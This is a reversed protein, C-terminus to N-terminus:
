TTSSLASQFTQIGFNKHWPVQESGYKLKLITLTQLKAGCVFKLVLLMLEKSKPLFLQTYLDGIKISEMLTEMDIESDLM